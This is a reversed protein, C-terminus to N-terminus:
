IGGSLPPPVANVVGGQVRIVIRVDREQAAEGTLSEGDLSAESAGLPQQPDGTSAGGPGDGERGNGGSLEIARPLGGRSAEDWQSMWDRGDSYRFRPNALRRVTTLERGEAADGAGSVGDGSSRYLDSADLRRQPDSGVESGRRPRRVANLERRLNAVPDGDASEAFPELSYRLTARDLPGRPAVKGSGVGREDDAGGSLEVGDQTGEDGFMAIRELWPLPDISPVIEASFGTSTGRFGKGALPGAAEDIFGSKPPLAALHDIDDELMERAARVLQMRYSQEWGRQEAQRYSGLMSWALAMLAGLLALAIMLEILTYGRRIM